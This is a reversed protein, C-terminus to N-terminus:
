PKSLLRQGEMDARRYLQAFDGRLANWDDMRLKGLFRRRADMDALSGAEKLQADLLQTMKLEAANALQRGAGQRHLHMGRLISPAHVDAARKVEWMTEARRVQQLAMQCRSEFKQSEQQLFWM